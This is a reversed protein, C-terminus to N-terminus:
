ATVTSVLETAGGFCKRAVWAVSGDSVHVVHGYLGAYGQVTTRVDKNDYFGASLTLLHLGLETRLSNLHVHGALHWHARGNDRMPVLVKEANHQSFGKTLDVPYWGVPLLHRHGVIVTDRNTPASLEEALWAVQEGALEMNESDTVLVRVGALDFGYYFGREAAGETDAFPLGKAADLFAALDRDHNGRAVYLPAKLERLVSHALALEDPMGHDSLDGSVMVLSPQPDLANIERVIREVRPTPSVSKVLFELGSNGVPPYREDIGGGIHLDSIQIIYAGDGTLHDALFASGEAASEGESTIDAFVSEYREDANPTTPSPRVLPADGDAGSSASSSSEPGEGALDTPTVGCGSVGLALGAVGATARRLFTRRSARM